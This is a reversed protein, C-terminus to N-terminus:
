SVIALAPERRVSEGSREAEGPQFFFREAGFAPELDDLWVAEPDFRAFFPRGVWEPDRGQLLELVFVDEGAVEAVGNVRVKGPYASMSPGRATRALGSVRRFARTFIEHCRALPLEFYGRPGTDREVFMYYPVMGLRVGERWLEAWVRADDNVHRLAPAQMRIEAGTDRVRRIATRAIEPRLEAPHSAHAMLALHRGAAIVEEFLELVEDADADTVFRQPWYALSKTGIRISQVHELGPALLPEIYRRLAKTKMVMPDGGTILVDTVEPHAHLYDALDRAEKAAFRHGPLDVFQPWRFCYTCYAHCTQGAAPFFLVTERYKHQLGPLPRGDLEPVNASLQGAPHPNLGLRIREVEATMEDKAADAEVLARVRQYDDPPLMDRQPFVLRFIPDDPVRRWDILERLVYPNVRFPLVRGVVEVAERHEPALLRAEPWRDLNQRTVARYRPNPTDHM